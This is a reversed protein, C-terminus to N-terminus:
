VDPLSLNVGVVLQGVGQITGGTPVADLVERSIVQTHVATTVDVVPSATTVTISEELAGVRLDANITATFESPLEIGERRLTQFGALTFTVVYTGPRLDVIRYTGQGDTVASRSREILVPSSAEVTVGPMVAGQADKVVGTIASQARALGPTGLLCVATVIAAAIRRTM